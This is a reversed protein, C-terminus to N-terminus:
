TKFGLDTLMKKISIRIFASPTGVGILEAGVVIKRFLADDTRFCIRHDKNIPTKKGM